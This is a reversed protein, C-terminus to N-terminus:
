EEPIEYVITVKHLDPDWTVTAGFAEMIFRIPLVTRWEPKKVFPPSDISLQKSNVYAVNIGLEMEIKTGSLILFIKKTQADYDVYIKFAESPFRIPVLTRGREIFVPIELPNQREGNVTTEASGITLGVTVKNPEAKVLGISLLVVFSLLLVLVKFHKEM